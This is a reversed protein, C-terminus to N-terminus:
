VVRSETLLLQDCVRIPIGRFVMTNVGDVVEYKLQGGSLVADRTQVDLMEAITRNVYFAPRGSNINPIHHTARIMGDLLDAGQKALLTPMDINAMRVAYRWDQVFLGHQWCWHERYVEQLGTNTDSFTGTNISQLSQIGLDRHEIGAKSGQPFFCTIADPKWTVLWISANTGSTGGMDLINQANGASLSNYRSSLGEFATPNARSGYFVNRAFTQNFSELQQQSKRVRLAAVQSPGGVEALRADVQTYAELRASSETIPMSSGNSVPVFQNYGTYFSEPLGTEVEGMHGLPMNSEIWGADAIIGNQQSLLNAVLTQIKHDPGLMNTLQTLTFVNSNAIVPM